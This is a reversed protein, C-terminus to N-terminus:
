GFLPWSSGRKRFTNALLLPLPQPLSIDFLWWVVWHSVLYGSPIQMILINQKIIATLWQFNRTVLWISPCSSHLNSPCVWSKKEFKDWRTEFVFRERISSQWEILLNSIILYVETFNHTPFAPRPHRHLSTMPNVNLLLLLLLLLMWTTDNQSFEFTPNDKPQPIERDSLLHTVRWIPKLRLRVQTLEFSCRIAVADFATACCNYKNIPLQHCLYDNLQGFLSPHLSFSELFLNNSM